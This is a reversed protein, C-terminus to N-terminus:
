LKTGSVYCLLRCSAVIREPAAMLTAGIIKGAACSVRVWNTM